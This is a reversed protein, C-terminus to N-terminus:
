RRSGLFDEVMSVIKELHSLLFLHGAGEVIKLRSHRILLRLIHGNVPRVLRDDGGTIILAKSRIFPLRFLGIWGAAALIQYFYGLPTPPRMRSLYHQLHQNAGGYLTDIHSNLYAPDAYRRPHIMKTLASLRGPVMIVGPTTAALVLRRVRRRYQFAFQQAMMGGWSVGMVDVEGYGLESLLRDAVNGMTRLRYPKLSRPSGGVGPMDFTIVDRGVLRELFPALFEINAGIGTFFLLPPAEPDIGVRRWHAVRLKWGLVNRIELHPQEPSKASEM